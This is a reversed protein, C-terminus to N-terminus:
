ALSNLVGSWSALGKAGYEESSREVNDRKDSLQGVLFVGLLLRCRAMSSRKDSLQGVLLVKHLQTARAM